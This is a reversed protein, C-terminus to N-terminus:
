QLSLNQPSKNSDAALRPWLARVQARLGAIDGSNDLVYDAQAIKEADPVQHSLRNRADAEIVGRDAEGPAVRAAYRAVKLEDPATVVIVRDIRRRWDALPNDKGSRALADRVVEFILASEIVAVAAPDRAFVDKMWRAQAEIVPPHVISNLEQLRGERFALEALRGRNLRGDPSVAQPGFHRVIETYVAQGPEMLERGLADAEIVQAGLERLMAAVTSKGSGLGGTLGVRLV